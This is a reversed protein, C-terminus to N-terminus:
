WPLDEPDPTAAEGEFRADCTGDECCPPSTPAADPDPIARQDVEETGSTDYTQEPPPPILEGPEHPEAAQVIVLEDKPVLRHTELPNRANHVTFDAGRFKFRLMGENAPAIAPDAYPKWSEMHQQAYAVLEPAADHFGFTLYPAAGTLARHADLLAILRQEVPTVPGTHEPLENLAGITVQRHRSLSESLKALAEGVDDYSLRVAQQADARPMRQGAARSFRKSEPEGIELRQGREDRGLAKRVASTVVDEKPKTAEAIRRNIDDAHTDHVNSQTSLDPSPPNPM